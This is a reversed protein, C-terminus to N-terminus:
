SKTGFEMVAGASAQAHWTAVIPPYDETRCKVVVLPSVMMGRLLGVARLKILVKSVYAVSVGYREALQKQSTQVVNGHSMHEVLDWFVGMEKGSLQGQLLMRTLDRMGSDLVIKWTSGYVQLPNARPSVKLQKRGGDVFDTVEDIEYM